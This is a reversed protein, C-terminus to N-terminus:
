RVESKLLRPFQYQALEFAGFLIGSYLITGMLFNKLYPLAMAYCLLFGNLDKAYGAVNCGSYWVGFDTIIWHALASAICALVVNVVTVKKIMWNGFCVILAFTGYVWYWGEYLPFGYKGQFVIGQIILDSLVLSMLPLLYAKWKNTFYAGGFLAMAGIPTFNDLHVVIRSLGAIIVLAALIYFRLNIKKIM